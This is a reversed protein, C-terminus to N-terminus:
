EPFFALNMTIANIMSSKSNTCNLMETFIGVIPIFLITMLLKM